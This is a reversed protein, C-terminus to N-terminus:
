RVNPKDILPSAKNQYTVKITLLTWDTRLKRIECWVRGM